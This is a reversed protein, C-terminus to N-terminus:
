VAKESPPESWSAALQSASFICGFASGVMCCAHLVAACTACCAWHESSPGGAVVYMARRRM